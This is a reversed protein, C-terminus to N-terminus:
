LNATLSKLVTSKGFFYPLVLFYSAQERKKNKYIIQNIDHMFTFFIGRHPVRQLGARIKSVARLSQHLAAQMESAARLSQKFDQGYRQYPANCHMM